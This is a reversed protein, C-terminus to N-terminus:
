SAPELVSRRVLFSLLARTTEPSFVHSEPVLRQLLSAERLRRRTVRTVYAPDHPPIHGVDDRGAVLTRLNSIKARAFTLRLKAAFRADSVVFYVPRTRLLETVAVYLDTCMTVVLAPKGLRRAHEEVQQQHFPTSVLLDVHELARFDAKTSRELDLRVVDFGYDRQLEDGISFLQDENCELVAVRAPKLGVWAELRKPLQPAPIGRAIGDALM